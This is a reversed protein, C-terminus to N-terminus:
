YGFGPSRSAAQSLAPLAASIGPQPVASGPSPCRGTRDPDAYLGVVQWNKSHAYEEARDPQFEMSYSQAKADINSVRSYIAAHEIDQTGLVKGVAKKVFLELEEPSAPLSWRQNTSGNPILM